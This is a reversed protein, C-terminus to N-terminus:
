KPMTPFSAQDVFAWSHSMQQAIGYGVTDVSSYTEFCKSKCQIPNDESGNELVLKAKGCVTCNGLDNKKSSAHVDLMQWATESISPKLRGAAMGIQGREYESLGKEEGVFTHALIIASEGVSTLYVPRLFNLYLM